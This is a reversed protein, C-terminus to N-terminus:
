FPFLVYDKLGLVIVTLMRAYEKTKNWWSGNRNKLHMSLIRHIELKNETEGGRLVVITMSM